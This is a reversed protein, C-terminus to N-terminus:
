VPPLPSFDAAAGSIIIDADSDIGPIDIFVAGAATFACLDTLRFNWRIEIEAHVLDFSGIKGIVHGKGCTIHNRRLDDSGFIGFPALFGAFVVGNIQVHFGFGDIQFDAGHDPCGAPLRIIGGFDVIQAEASIRVDDGVHHQFSQGGGVSGGVAFDETRRVAFCRFADGKDLAGSGPIFIM